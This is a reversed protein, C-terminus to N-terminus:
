HGGSQIGNTGETRIEGTRRIYFIKEAKITDWDAGSRKKKFLQAPRASTGYFIVQSKSEDYTITDSRGTSDVTRFSCHGDAKMQQSAKGEEQRSYVDLKDCHLYMGGEPLHEVDPELNVNDSPLHVAHVDETFIATHNKNNAYMGGAYVVRTLKLVAEGPKAAQRPAAAGPATSAQGPPALPDDDTEPQLIRVVGPGSAHVTNEENDVSLTPCELRQYKLLRGHEDRETDEVRVAQDAVLNRVKAPERGKEGEKLSVPRDLYVDMSQCLLRAAEQEAQVGGHFEARQGWFIMNHSWHVTLPVPEKLKRGDFSNESDMQMAGIGNVWVKNIAQDINVVPGVIYIKDLRLQGLDGTVTLLNGEARRHMKLTEGQIDVGKEGPNAPAQTVHVRGETWLRDLENKEGDRLVHAEVLRASLDIPRSPKAQEGAGKAPEKGGAAPAKGAPDTGADATPAPQNEGPKAAQPAPLQGGAAPPGNADPAKASGEAPPLVGDKFWILLRDTDHIIMDVSRALVHGIAEVHHPRRGHHDDANDGAAAPKKDADKDKAQDPAPELWVKLVDAQLRQQQQEDEFHADGTLVLLDYAGDKSSVLQDKWSAHQARKFTKKDLLGIWGPGLATLQQAGKQELIRLERGHVEHGDKIAWVDDPGGRKLTSQRTTADYYFDDGEASLNESDSKLDVQRGTAHVNEIELDLSRDENVARPSNGDKPHFQLDLHECSLEDTRGPDHFRVASVWNPSGGPTSAIDFRAHSKPVDFDFPGQTTIVIHAKNAEAAAPPAAKDGADARAESRAPEPKAEAKAAPDAKGAGAGKGDKGNSLFGSDGDVYLDM